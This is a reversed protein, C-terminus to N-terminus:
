RNPPSRWPVMAPILLFYAMFDQIIFARPRPGCRSPESSTMIQAAARDLDNAEIIAVLITPIAAFILAPFAVAGLLLRNSLLDRCEKVFVAWVFPLRM